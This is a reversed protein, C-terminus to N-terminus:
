VPADAALNLLTASLASPASYFPSHDTDLSEVRWCPLADYMARQKVVPVVQDQRCEVYARPVRGFRVGSLRMEAAGAFLPEPTLLSAARAALHPPTTNYFFPRLLRTDFTTSVGDPCLTIGARVEPDPPGLVDAMKHGDPALIAAIYITTRLAEPAMEAVQSIVIGARSHGALVCPEPQQRVLAAFDHTWDAFSLSALSRRDSGMGPLDPTLVTHGLAALQPAVLEWCWAGHWAGSVLIFIM